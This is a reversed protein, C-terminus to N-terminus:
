SKGGNENAKPLLQKAAMDFSGGGINIFKLRFAVSLFEYNINNVRGIVLM